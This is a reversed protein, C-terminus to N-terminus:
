IGELSDTLIDVVIFGKKVLIETIETENSIERSAGTNGRRLYVMSSKTPYGFRENIRRRLIDYRQKKSKTQAYDQFIILHSVRARDTPIWKQDFYSEYKERHGFSSPPRRFCLPAGYKEALLYKVCDDYLWHGFYKYGPYSSALGVEDIEIAQKSLSSAEDSMAMRARGSYISGDFVFADRIHYAITAAHTVHTRTVSHIQAELTSDKQAGTVKDLQGDLYISPRMEDQEAPCLIDQKYAM